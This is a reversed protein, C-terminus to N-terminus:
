STIHLKAIETKGTLDANTTEDNTLGGICLTCAINKCYTVHTLTNRQSVSPERDLTMSVVIIVFKNFHKTMEFIFRHTWAVHVERGNLNACRSWLLTCHCLPM